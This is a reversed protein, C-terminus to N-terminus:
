GDQRVSNSVKANFVDDDDAVRITSTDRRAESGRGLWVGVVFLWLSGELAPERRKCGESLFEVPGRRIFEDLRVDARLDRVHERAVDHAGRPRAVGSHAALRAEDADVAPHVVELVAPHPIQADARVAARSRPRPGSSLYIFIFNAIYWIIGGM